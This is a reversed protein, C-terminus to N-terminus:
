AAKLATQGLTLFHHWHPQCPQAVHQNKTCRNERLLTANSPISTSNGPSAPTKCFPMVLEFRKEGTVAASM